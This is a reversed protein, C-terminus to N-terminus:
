KIDYPIAELREFGVLQKVELRELLKRVRGFHRGVEGPAHADSGLTLGIGRSVAQELIGFSPYPEKCPRDWGSTNIELVMGNRAIRDLIEGVLRSHDRQPTLGTLSNFKKVLDLHGITTCYESSVMELLTEYYREYVSDIGGAFRDLGALLHEPSYDVIVGDVIHVAALCYDLGFRRAENLPHYSHDPGLYDFESGIRIKIRDAFAKQLRATQQLYNDYLHQPIVCDAAPPDFGPPYPFHGSFGIEALGLEIAREVYEEMKGTAHGCLSTHVHYDILIVLERDLL